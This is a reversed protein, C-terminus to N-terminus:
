DIEQRTIAADERHLIVAVMGALEARATADLERLRNNPYLGCETLIGHTTRRGFRPISRLLPELKLDGAARGWVDDQGRILSVPDLEGSHLRKKIAAQASRVKNAAELARQRQQLNRRAVESM